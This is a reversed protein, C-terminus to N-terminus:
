IKLGTVKIFTSKFQSPYIPEYVDYLVTTLSSPDFIYFEMKYFSNTSPIYSIKCCNTKKCGTFYFILSNDVFLFNFAGITEKFKEGGLHELIRSSINKQKPM